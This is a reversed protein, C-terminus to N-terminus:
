ASLGYSRSARDAAPEQLEVETERTQGREAGDHEVGVGLPAELVSRVLQEGAARAPKGLTAEVEEAPEGARPTEDEM